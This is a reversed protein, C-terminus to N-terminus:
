KKTYDICYTKQKGLREIALEVLDGDKLYGDETMGLAVGSPTGTSILDGAELTMYQSLYHIIQNPKFIMDSTSSHQRIEGNVSLTMELSCPDSIVDATLLFPGLPNFSDCSKGKCFQGSKKFQFDRESVDNSILYGAIYNDAEDASDLYRCDRSIVAALEIEYDTKRSSKPIIINDNPGVISSTAKMFLMPEDPLQSGTEKAHAFYNLGICMTKGPRAIPAAWREDQLVDPLSAADIQKLKEIGKSKFFSNNWDRFLESCDKRVGNDLLIGPKEEGVNGFRILKM